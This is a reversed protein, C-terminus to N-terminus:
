KLIFFELLNMFYCISFYLKYLLLLNTFGLIIPLSIYLYYLEFCLYIFTCILLYTLYIFVYYEINNYNTLTVQVHDVSYLQTNMKFYKAAALRNSHFVIYNCVTQCEITYNLNSKISNM